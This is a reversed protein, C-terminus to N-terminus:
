EAELSVGIYFLLISLAQEKDEMSLLSTFDEVDSQVAADIKHLLHIAPETIHIRIERQDVESRNRVAYGRNVLERVLNSAFAQSIDLTSAIDKVRLCREESGYIQIMVQHLMPDLNQEKAREEVLRFAKRLVFRAKAVGKFYAHKDDTKRSHAAARRRRELRKANTVAM